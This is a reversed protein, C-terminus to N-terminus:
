LMILKRLMSTLKDLETEEDITFEKDRLTLELYVGAGENGVKVFLTEDNQNVIELSGTIFM